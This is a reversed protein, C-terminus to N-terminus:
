NRKRALFVFFGPFYNKKVLHNEALGAFKPEEAILEDYSRFPQFRNISTSELIMGCDELIPIMESLTHQTEHPHLVQDRFWSKLHTEDTFRRDLAAYARLLAREDAGSERLRAFHELFPRRGYRHYLGIFVRGGPAIFERCMRAVAAACNDTHHLVGLSIAIDAQKAPRFTFLDAIEFHVSVGLTQAVDKARRIAIPNFDIASVECGHHFAIGNSLWGSGCGVELVRTRGSALLPLLAPYNSASDDSRIAAAHREPSERYNFPLERYFALVDHNAWSTREEGINATPDPM